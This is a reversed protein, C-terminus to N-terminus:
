GRRGRSRRPRHPHEQERGDWKQAGGRRQDHGGRTAVVLAAGTAVATWLALTRVSM